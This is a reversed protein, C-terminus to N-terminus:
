DFRMCGVVIVRDGRPEQGRRMSDVIEALDLRAHREKTIQLRLEQNEMQTNSIAHWLASREFLVLSLEGLRVTRDHEIRVHMKVQSELEDFIREAELRIPSDIPGFYSLYSSQVDIAEFVSPMQGERLVIEQRRLAGYGFGLPEGMATELVSAAWQQGEPVVEDGGLGLSEVRIGLDEGGVALGEDGAAPGDDKATRGADESKSDSDLSEDVEEQFASDSMAAVEAISASLSPSMALLCCLWFTKRGVNELCRVSSSSLCCPFGLILIIEFEVSTLTRMMKCGIM